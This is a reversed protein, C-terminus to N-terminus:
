GPGPGTACARCPRRGSATPRTAARGPVPRRRTWTPACRGAGPARCRPCWSRWRAPGRGLSSRWGRPTGRVLPWTPWCMRAAPRSRPACNTSPRPGWCSNRTAAGGTASPKWPRAGCAAPCRAPPAAPRPPPRRRPPRRRPPRRVGPTPSNGPEAPRWGSPYGRPTPRPRSSWRGASNWRRSRTRWSVASWPGAPSWCGGTAARGPPRCATSPGPRCCYTPPWRPCPSWRPPSPRGCIAPTRRTTPAAPTRRASGGCCSCLSPPRRARGSGNGSASWSRSPRNWIPATGPGSTCNSGERRTTFEWDTTSGRPRPTSVGEAILAPDDEVRGRWIRFTAKLQEGVARLAPSLGAAETTAEELCELARRRDSADDRLEGRVQYARSLAMLVIALIGQEKPAQQRLSLLEDVVEDLGAPDETREARDTRFDACLTRIVLALEPPIGGEDLRGNLAELRRIGLETDLLSGGAGDATSLLMSQMATLLPVLEHGEPLRGMADAIRGLASDLRVPDSRRASEVAEHVIVRAADELQQELPVSPDRPERELEEHLERLTDPSISEPALNELTSLVRAQNRLRDASREQPTRTDPPRGEAPPQKRLKVLVEFQDRYPFGPSSFVSALREDTIRSLGGPKLLEQILAAAPVVQDLQQRLEAPLPLAQVDAFLEPLEGPDFNDGHKRYWDVFAAHDPPLGQHGGLERYPFGLVLLGFAACRREWDAARPRAARVPRLYRLGRQRDQEPSPAAPSAYRLALLAGLRASVAHRLTDALGPTAELATLEDITRDTFGPESM